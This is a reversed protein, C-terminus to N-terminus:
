CTGSATGDNCFATFLLRNAKRDTIGIIADVKKILSGAPVPIREVRLVM